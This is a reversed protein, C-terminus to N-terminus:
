INQFYYTYFINQHTKFQSFFFYLSFLDPRAPFFNYKILLFEFSNSTKVKESCTFIGTFLFISGFEYDDRLLRCFLVLNYILHISEIASRYSGAQYVTICTIVQIKHVEFIFTALLKNM